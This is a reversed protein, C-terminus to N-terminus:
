RLDMDQLSYEAARISYGAVHLGHGSVVWHGADLGDAVLVGRGFGPRRVVRVQAVVAPMVLM